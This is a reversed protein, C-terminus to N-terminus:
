KGKGELQKLWNTILSTWSLKEEVFKRGNVGLEKALDPNKSLCIIAEALLDSNEPTVVIGAKAEEILQAGEGAGSYIVPVASSLSPFIKSPRAGKFLEIDKLTVLSAYSISFFEPMRRLPQPELFLVNKLNNDNKNKILKHKIPGDGIFLFLVNENKVKKAAELIIELGQAYGHTGAYLFVTKNEIGLENILDNKPSQLKFLNIDVGNPLYLIKQEQVGKAELREKIGETVVTIFQAKRYTWLELHEAARLVFRNRIINLDRVSDPWLDAVNFIFPRKWILSMIYAPISLFLPPSEVFIYDPKQCRFLGFLCTVVFSLYNIIRKFGAGSAAYLWVRHITIEDINEKVYFKGKYNPFIRGTPHNPLATVVEVQHGLKVLEIGMSKLRTQPAGIEPPYYQTLFLFRM